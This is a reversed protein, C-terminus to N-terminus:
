KHKAQENRMAHKRYAMDKRYEAQCVPCFAEILEDVKPDFLIGCKYCVTKSGNWM